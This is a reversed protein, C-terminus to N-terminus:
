IAAPLHFGVDGNPQSFAKTTDTLGTTAGSSDTTGLLKAGVGDWAEWQLKPTSSTNVGGPPITFVFRITVTTGAVAFAADSAIFFTDNFQPRSGFPQVDRTFDLKQGNAYAADVQTPTIVSFGVAGTIAVPPSGAPVLARLWHAEVGDVTTTDTAAAPPPQSWRGRAGPCPGRRCRAGAATRRPARGSSRRRPCRPEGAM